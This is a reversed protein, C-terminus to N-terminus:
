EDKDEPLELKLRTHPGLRITDGHQIPIPAGSIIENNNIFTSYDRNCNIIFYQRGIKQIEAHEEALLQDDRITLDCERRRGILFAGNVLPFTQHRVTDDPTAEVRVQAPIIPQVPLLVEKAKEPKLARRAIWAALYLLGLLLLFLLIAAVYILPNALVQRIQFLGQGWWHRPQPKPVNDVQATFGDRGDQVTLALNYEGYGGVATYTVTLPTTNTILRPPLPYVEDLHNSGTYILYGSVLLRAPQAPIITTFRPRGDVTVVPGSVADKGPGTRTVSLSVTLEPRLAFGDLYAQNVTATLTPRYVFLAEAHPYYRESTVGNQATVRILYQREPQPRYSTALTQVQDDLRFSDTLFVQQLHDNTFLDEILVEIVNTRRPDCYPEHHPCLTFRIEFEGDVEDYIVNHLTVADALAAPFHEFQATYTLPQTALATGDALRPTLDLAHTGTPTFLDITVAWQWTFSDIIRQLTPTIAAASEPTVTLGHALTNTSTLPLTGTVLIGNEYYPFQITHIPIPITTSLTALDLVQRYDHQSCPTEDDYTREDQGDTFILLARRNDQPLQILSNVATYATDFLCTSGNHTQLQEIQALVEDVDCTFPQFSEQRVQGNFGVLSFCAQATEPVQETLLHRLISQTATMNKTMSGSSDVLLTVYFPQSILSTASIVNERANVIKIGADPNAPVVELTDIPLFGSSGDEVLGVFHIRYSDAGTVDSVIPEGLIFGPLPPETQAMLRTVWALCLLSVLGITLLTMLKSVATYKM